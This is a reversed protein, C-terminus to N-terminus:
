IDPMEAKRPAPNGRNPVAPKERSQIAQKNREDLRRYVERMKRGKAEGFAKKAMEFEKNAAPAGRGTHGGQFEAELEEFAELQLRLAQQDVKAKAYDPGYRMDMADVMQDLPGMKEYVREAVSRQYSASDFIKQQEDKAVRQNLQYTEDQKIDPYWRRRLNNDTTAYDTVGLMKPDRVKVAYSPRDSRATYWDSEIFINEAGYKAVLPALEKAKYSEFQQKIWDEKGALAPYVTEPAYQMLERQGNINTVRWVKNLRNVAFDTAKDMDGYVMYASEELERFQAMYDQGRKPDDKFWQDYFNDASKNVRKITKKMDGATNKWDFARQEKVKKDVLIEQKALDYAEAAGLGAKSNASIESLMASDELGSLDDQLAPIDGFRGYLDAAMVALEPSKEGLGLMRTLDEKMGKPMYGTREVMRYSGEMWAQRAAPDPNSFGYQLTAGYTDDMVARDSESAVPMGAQIMQGALIKNMDSKTLEKMDAKIKSSDAYRKNIDARAADVTKLWENQSVGEPKKYEYERLANIAPEIGESDYLRTIEGRFRLNEQEADAKDVLDNAEEPTLLGVDVADQIRNNYETQLAAIENQNGAFSAAGMDDRVLDLDDHLRGQMQNIVGDSLKIAQEESFVNSDVGRRIADLAMDMNGADSFQQIGSMYSRQTDRLVYGRLRDTLRDDMKGFQEEMAAQAQPRKSEPVNALAEQMKSHYHDRVGIMVDKTNAFTKDGEVSVTDAWKMKSPDREDTETLVKTRLEDPMRPDNIDIREGTSLYDEIDSLDTQMKSLQETAKATDIDDKIQGYAEAGKKAIALGRMLDDNVDVPPIRPNAMTYDIDPLRM